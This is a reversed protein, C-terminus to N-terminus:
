QFIQKNQKGYIKIMTGAIMDAVLEIPSGPYSDGPKIMNEESQKLHTLEHAVTRLIDVLNRNKVYVWVKNTNAIHRGTHHGSQAEHHNFSLEIDPKTKLKLKGSAWNVFKQVERELDYEVNENLKRRKIWNDPTIRHKKMWLSHLKKPTIDHKKAIQKMLRDITDYNHKKLGPLKRALDGVPSESLQKSIKGNSNKYIRVSEGGGGGGDGGSSSDSSTTSIGYYGFGPYFYRPMKNKSAKKKARKKKKYRNARKIEIVFQKARM